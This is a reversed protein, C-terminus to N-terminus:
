SCLESQSNRKKKKLMYLERLSKVTMNVAYFNSWLPFANQCCVGTCSTCASHKTVYILRIVM